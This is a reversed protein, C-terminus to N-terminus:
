TIFFTQFYAWGVPRKQVKGQKAEEKAYPFRFTKFFRSKILNKKATVFVPSSLLLFLLARYLANRKIIRAFCLLVKGGRFKSFFCWSKACVQRLLLTAAGLPFPREGEGQGVTSSFWFPSSSSSSSSWHLLAEAM